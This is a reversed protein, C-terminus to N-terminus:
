RKKVSARGIAYAVGLSVAWAVIVNMGLAWLEAILGDFMGM